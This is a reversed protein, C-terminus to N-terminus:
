ARISSIGTATIGTVDHANCRLSQFLTFGRDISQFFSSQILCMTHHTLSIIFHIDENIIGLIIRIIVNKNLPSSIFVIIFFILIVNTSYIITRPNYLFKISFLISSFNCSFPSAPRLTNTM